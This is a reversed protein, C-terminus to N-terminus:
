NGQERLIGAREVYNAVGARFRSKEDETVTRRPKAPSGMVVTDAPIETGDTVLWGAAVVAGRGIRAGTLVIAGIGITTEDEIVCGHIMAGHGITVRDGIKAPYGHDTHVVAGEQLNTESGVRVPEIDGRLTVSPWVSSREGIHVDGIVTAAPDIYASAAITPAIDRFKRIM